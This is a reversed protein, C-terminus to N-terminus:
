LILLAFLYLVYYLLILNINIPEWTYFLRGVIIAHHPQITECTTVPTPYIALTM